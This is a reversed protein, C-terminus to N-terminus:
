RVSFFYKEEIVKGGPFPPDESTTLKPISNLM